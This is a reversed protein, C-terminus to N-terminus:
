ETQLVRFFNMYNGMFSCTKNLVCGDECYKEFVIDFIKKAEEVKNMKLLALGKLYMLDPSEPYESRDYEVNFRTEDFEVEGQIMAYLKNYTSHLLLVNNNNISSTFKGVKSGDIFANPFTKFVEMGERNFNLSLSINTQYVIPLMRKIVANAARVSIFYSDCTPLLAMNTNFNCMKTYKSSPKSTFPQGFAVVDKEFISPDSLLKACDKSLIVDDEIILSPINSKVTKEIATFHKLYNSVNALNLPRQFREFLMEVEDSEEPKQQRILNKVNSANLDKVNYNDVVQVENIFIVKELAEKIIEINGERNKLSTDHIIYANMTQNEM